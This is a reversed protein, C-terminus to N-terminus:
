PMIAVGFGLKVMTKSVMTVTKSLEVCGICGLVLLNCDENKTGLEILGLTLLALYISQNGKWTM